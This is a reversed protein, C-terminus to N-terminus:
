ARCTSWLNKILDILAHLLRKADRLPDDSGRRLCHVVAFAYRIALGNKFAPWAIAEAPAFVSLGMFDYGVGAKNAPVAKCFAPRFSAHEMRKHPARAEQALLRGTAFAFAGTCSRGNYSQRPSSFEPGVVTFM